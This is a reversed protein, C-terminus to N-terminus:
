EPRIAAYLFPQTEVCGKKNKTGSRSLDGAGPLGALGIAGTGTDDNVTYEARAFFGDSAGLMVTQPTVGASVLRGSDQEIVEYRVGTPTSSILVPYVSDSVISACGSLVTAALLAVPAKIRFTM